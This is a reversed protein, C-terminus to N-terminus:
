NLITNNDNADFMFFYTDIKDSLNQPTIDQEQLITTIYINISDNM